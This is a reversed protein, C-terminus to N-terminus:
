HTYTNKTYWRELAGVLDILHNTILKKFLFISLQFQIKKNWSYWCHFITNWRNGVTYLITEVVIIISIISNNLNNYYTAKKNTPVNSQQFPKKTM